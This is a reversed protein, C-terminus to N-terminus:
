QKKARRATTTKERKGSKKGKVGATIKVDEESVDVVQGNIRVWLRYNNSKPRNALADGWMLSSIENYTIGEFMGRRRGRYYRRVIAGSNGAVIGLEPISNYFTARGSPKGMDVVHPERVAGGTKRMEDIEKELDAIKDRLRDVEKQNFRFIM